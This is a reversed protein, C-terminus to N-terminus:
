IRPPSGESTLTLNSKGEPLKTCASCLGTLAKLSVGGITLIMNFKTGDKNQLGNCFKGRPEANPNIVGKDGSSGGSDPRPCSKISAPCEDERHCVNDTCTYGEPCKPEGPNCVFPIEGLDLSCGGAGVLLAAVACSVLFRHATTQKGIEGHRNSSM